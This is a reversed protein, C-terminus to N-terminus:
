GRADLTLARFQNKTLLARVDDRERTAAWM